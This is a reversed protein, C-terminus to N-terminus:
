GAAQEIVAELSEPTLKTLEVPNGNVFITPTQNV